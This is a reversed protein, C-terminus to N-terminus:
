EATFDDTINELPPRKDSVPVLTPAGQPKEVFPASLEAFRRKGVIKELDTLSLLTPPRYLANREFGSNVLIDVLAGPQTIIRNSRGEVLKYGPVSVGRMAEDFLHKEVATMWKKLVDFMPLMEALEANTMQGVPTETREATEKALKALGPCQAKGKCFGCHAGPVHDGKGEFALAARPKVETEAWELLEGVTTSWTSINALRPQFITCKVDSFCYLANHEDYAGLAYLKMQPNNEASVSVGKGYKFDIIEIRTNSVIVADGTGFCEPAFASLDLRQELFLVADPTERRADLLRSAVFEAYTDTHEEMEPSYDESARLKEIEKKSRLKLKILEPATANHEATYPLLKAEALAHAHTGERTFDTEFDPYLEEIRASPTCVLWRAASSPSLIAHAM